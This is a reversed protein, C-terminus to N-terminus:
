EGLIFARVFSMVCMCTIYGSQYVLIDRGSLSSEWLAESVRM